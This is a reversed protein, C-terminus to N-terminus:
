GTASQEHLARQVSGAFRRSVVTQALERCDRAPQTALYETLAAVTVDALRDVAADTSQALRAIVRVCLRQDSAKAVVRALAPDILVVAGDVVDALGLDVLARADDDAPDIDLRRDARGLALRRIGLVDALDQGARLSGFFEAIHASSFGKGLLQSITQLQALHADGYYASRGARRPPDLLGRERYARINRASVGSMRALDDLRYEAM